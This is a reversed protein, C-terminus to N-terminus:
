PFCTNPLVYTFSNTAKSFVDVYIKKFDENFMLELDLFGLSDKAVEM